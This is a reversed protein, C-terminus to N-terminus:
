FGADADSQPHSPALTPTTIGQAFYRPISSDIALKGASARSESATAAATWGGGATADNYPGVGMSALFSTM